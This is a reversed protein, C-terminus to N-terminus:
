PASSATPLPPVLAATVPQTAHGLSTAVTMVAGSHIASASGMCIVAPTRYASCVTSQPQDLVAWVSRIVHAATALRTAVTLALGSHIASVLAMPMVALTLSVPLVTPTTHALVARVSRTVSDRSSRLFAATQATGSCIVSVPASSTRAPTRSALSATAHAQALVAARVSRVVSDPTSLTSQATRVLGSATASASETLTRTPMTPVTLVTATPQALVATVDHTAHDSMDSAPIGPGTRTVAASGMSTRLPTRLVGSVTTPRQDMADSVSRMVRVSSNRAILEAGAQTAHASTAETGAPMPPVSCVTVLRHDTAVPRHTAAQTAGAATFQATSVQGIHTVTAAGMATWARTKSVFVVDILTRVLRATMLHACELTTRATMAQSTSQVIVALLTTPEDTTASLAPLRLTVALVTPSVLELGFTATSGKGDTWATVSSTLPMLLAKTMYLRPGTRMPTVSFVSTLMQGTVAESSRRVAHTVHVWTPRVTTATTQHIAQAGTSTVSVTTTPMVTLMNRVTTVTTREATSMEAAPATVVFTAPPCQHTVSSV